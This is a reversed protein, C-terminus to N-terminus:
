GSPVSVINDGNFNWGGGGWSRRRVVMAFFKVAVYINPLDIHPNIVYM